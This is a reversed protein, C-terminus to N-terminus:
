SSKRPLSLCLLTKKCIAAIIQTELGLQSQFGGVFYTFGGRGDGAIYPVKRIYNFMHGSIFLLISIMTIAAWVNRNQVIPLVYPSATVLATGAGLVITVAAGLRM